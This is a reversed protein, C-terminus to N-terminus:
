WNFDKRLYRYIAAFWVLPYLALFVIMYFALNFFKKITLKPYFKITRLIYNYYTLSSIFMVFFYFIMVSPYFNISHFSFITTEAAISYGVTVLRTLIAKFLLYSSYSFGFISLIISLSVFPMVFFGFIGKKFFYNKYKFIAQIGGIGWRIRQRSWRKFTTPVITSVRADFCMATKYQHSMLNWTIDIDETISKHDFGGVELVYSKRYLSLPGNTVYVSNVFDLIKRNWALIM